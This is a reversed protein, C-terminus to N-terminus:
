DRPSSRNQLCSGAGSGWSAGPLRTPAGAGGRHRLGNTPKDDIVTTARRREAARAGLVLIEKKVYRAYSGGAARVDAFLRKIALFHRNTALGPYRREQEDLLPGRGVSGQLVCGVHAGNRLLARVCECTDTNVGRRGDRHNEHM